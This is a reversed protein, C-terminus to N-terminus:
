CEIDYGEERWLEFGGNLSKIKENDYGMRQLAEAAMVSRLGGACYLVIPRNSDINVIKEIRLELVGRPISIAHPIKGLELESGERVDIIVPATESSSPSQGQIHNNLEAASIEHIHSAAKTRHVLDSWRKNALFHSQSFSRRGQLAVRFATSLPSYTTRLM